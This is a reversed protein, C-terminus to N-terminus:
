VIPRLWRSVTKMLLDIPQKMRNAIEAQLPTALYLFDVLCDISEVAQVSTPLHTRGIGVNALKPNVGGIQPLLAIMLGVLSSALHHEAESVPILQCLSGAATGMLLARDTGTIIPLVALTRHPLNFPVSHRLFQGFHVPSFIELDINGYTDISVIGVSSDKRITEVALASFDQLPFSKALQQISAAMSIVNMHADMVADEKYRLLYVGRLIDGAVIFNKFFTISTIQLGLDIMGVGRLRGAVADWQYMMLRHGLGVAVCGKWTKVITVATRKVSDYLIKCGAVTENEKLTVAPGTVGPAYDVRVVILRGQAPTEEGLAFTTGVILVDPGLGLVSEAWAMSTVFEGPELDLMATVTEMSKNLVRIQHKQRNPPVPCTILMATPAAAATMGSDDMVPGDMTEEPVEETPALPVVLGPDVEDTITAVAIGPQSVCLDLGYRDELSITQCPLRMNLDVGSKFKFIEVSCVNNKRLSLSIYGNDLYASSFPALDMMSSINFAHVMVQGRDSATILASESENIAVALGENIHHMFYAASSAAPDFLGPVSDQVQLVFRDGAQGYVLVPRGEILIVLITQGDSLRYLRSESIRVKEAFLSTSTSPELPRRTPDTISPIFESDASEAGEILENVLVPKCVSAYRTFFVMSAGSFVYLSGQNDTVTIFLDNPNDLFSASFSIIERGEPISLSELTRKRSGSEVELEVAQLTSISTKCVLWIDSTVSVISQCASVDWSEIGSVSLPAEQKSTILAVKGFGKPSTFLVHGDDTIRKVIGTIPDSLDARGLERLGNGCDILIIRHDSALALMHHQQYMFNYVFRMDKISLEFILETPVHSQLSLINGNGSTALVVVEDEDKSARVLSRVAGTGTIEDLLGLEVSHSIKARHVEDQYTSLLEAIAPDTSSLSQELEVLRIEESSSPFVSMPLLIEKSTLQFLFSNGQKSTVFLYKGALCISSPADLKTGVELREWVVESVTNFAGSQRVLHCGLLDGSKTAFVVFEDSVAVSKSSTLEVIFEDEHNLYHVVPQRGDSLNTGAPNVPITVSSSFEECYSVDDQSSVLFGRRPAPLPILEFSGSPLNSFSWNVCLAKRTMDVTVLRVVGTRPGTTSSRGVWAHPEAKGLIALSMSSGATGPLFRVDDISALGLPANVKVATTFSILEDGLHLFTLTVPSFQAVILDGSTRCFPSQFTAFPKADVEAALCGQSLTKLQKTSPDFQMRAIMGHRFVVIFADVAGAEGHAVGVCHINSNFNCRFVNRSSTYM